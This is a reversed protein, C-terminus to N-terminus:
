HFRRKCAPWDVDWWLRSVVCCADWIFFCKEQSMSILYSFLFCSLLCSHSPTDLTAVTWDLATWTSVQDWSTSYLNVGTCSPWLQGILLLSVTVRPTKERAWARVSAHPSENVRCM